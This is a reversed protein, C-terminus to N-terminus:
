FYLADCILRKIFIGNEINFLVPTKYKETKRKMWKASFIFAFGFLVASRKFFFEHTQSISIESKLFIDM